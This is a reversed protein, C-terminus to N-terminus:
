VPLLVWSNPKMSHAGVMNSALPQILFVWLPSFEFDQTSRQPTSIWGSNAWFLPGDGEDLNLDFIAEDWINNTHCDINTIWM